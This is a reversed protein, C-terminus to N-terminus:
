NEIVVRMRHPAPFNGTNDVVTLQLWYVGNPFARSDFQMLVGDSVQSYVVDGISHWAGPDEGVGHEVKYFQFNGHRATGRVTVSGSLRANSGPSTICVNPDRCVPAPPVPTATPSLDPVETPPPPPTPPPVPTPAPREEIAVVEEPTPTPPPQTPIPLTATVTPRNVVELEEMSPLVYHQLGLVLAVVGLTMGINAMSRGERHASVEREVSFITNVRARRAMVYNRLNYLCIVACAVYLWAIYSDLFEFVSVLIDFV